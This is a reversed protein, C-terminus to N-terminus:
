ELVFLVFSARNRRKIREMVYMGMEWVANGMQHISSIANIASLSGGRSTTTTVPQPVKGHSQVGVGRVTPATMRIVEMKTSQKDM